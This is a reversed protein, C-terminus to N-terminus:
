SPALNMMRALKPWRPSSWLPQLLESFGFVALAEHEEIAKEYSDAAADINSSLVHFYVMGFHHMGTPPLKEVLERARTENGVVFYLSALCAGALSFWPALRYWDEGWKLAEEFRGLSTCAFTLQFHALWNAESIELAKRAEEISQEYRRAFNLATALNARYVINLPDQELAVRLESVAEEVRGIPVLRYLANRALVEAPVPNQAMALAFQRGAEQWDYDYCGAVMGLITHALPESSSLELARM